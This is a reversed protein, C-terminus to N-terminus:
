DQRFRRVPGKVETLDRLRKAFEPLEETRVHLTGDRTNDLEDGKNWWLSFALSTLGDPTRQATVSIEAFESTWEASGNWAPASIEEFFAVMDNTYADIMDLEVGWSEGDCEVIV